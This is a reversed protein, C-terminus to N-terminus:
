DAEQLAVLAPLGRAVLDEEIQRAAPGILEWRGGARKRGIQEGSRVEQLVRVRIDLARRAEVTGERERGAIEECYDDGEEYEYYLRSIPADRWDVIPAPLSPDIVTAKGLLVERRRDERLRVHAFWPSAADLDNAHNAKRHFRLENDKETVAEELARRQVPDGRLAKLRAEMERGERVLRVERARDAEQLAVLAPLGRAVLDEEEAIWAPLDSSM